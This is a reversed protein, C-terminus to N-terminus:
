RQAAPTAGRDTPTQNTARGAILNPGTGPVGTGRVEYATGGPTDCCRHGNWGRYSRSDESKRSAKGHLGATISSLIDTPFVGLLALGLLFAFKPRADQLKGMWELPESTNRTLYVHAILFLVLVLVIGDIVQGTTGALRAGAAVKAGKAAVYALTVVATISLAAGALYSLSNKAWDKSTALFFASVIQPGAIMVFSLPLVAALSM